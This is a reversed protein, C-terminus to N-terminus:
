GRQWEPRAYPGFDPRLRRVWLCPTFTSLLAYACPPPKRFAEAGGGRRSPIGRRASKFPHHIPVAFRPPHAAIEVSQGLDKVDRQPTNLLTETIFPPWSRAFPNAPQLHLVGPDPDLGAYGALDDGNLKAVAVIGVEATSKVSM